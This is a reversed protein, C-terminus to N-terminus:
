SGLAARRVTEDEGNIVQYYGNEDWLIRAILAKIRTKLFQKSAANTPSAVISDRKAFQDLQDLINEPLSFNKVFDDTTKYKKFTGKNVMYFNYSFNGITNSVYFKNISSDFYTTDIAVFVDPTIGGGGYLLKGSATKYKKTHNASSTDTKQGEENHYRKLVENQYAQNGNKYSRQISRGLPTYYKAVTLRLASGDSLTYQEQVLGKGFSRRGVIVARDLDQLAGALVESASASGENMLVVLEGEEFLGPRKCIYEKKPSNKGETYVILNNNGIFEDAIDVAEELIGGGNDRLDLILSKLGKAKLGELSKMFEEYTSGSFRNLRIYGKKDDIMYSADVSVIPISGRVVTKYLIKKDRELKLKVETGAPGKVWSKFISTEIKGTAVSDDVKLIRDGIMLNAKAAPGNPLVSLIHVTDNFNNFEVGIGEFRGTLDENIENLSSSPIYVSHPDLTTLMEEIAIESISDINVTEVYRQKVLGLVEDMKNIGTTNFLNRSTPMNGHLKYGVFMGLVVAIAFLIPLATQFKKNNM